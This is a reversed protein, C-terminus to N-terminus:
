RVRSANGPARTLACIPAHLRLRSLPADADSDPAGGRERRRLERGRLGVRAGAATARHAFREGHLDLAFAGSEDLEMALASGQAIISRGRASGPRGSGRRSPSAGSLTPCRRTDGRVLGHPHSQRRAPWSRNVPSDIVTRSWARSRRPARRHMDPARHRLPLVRGDAEVSVKFDLSGGAAISLADAYGAIVKRPVMLRRSCSSSAVPTSNGACAFSWASRRTATTSCVIRWCRGAARRTVRLAPDPDVRTRTQDHPPRVQRGPARERMARLLRQLNPSHLGAPAAMFERALDLDREPDIRFGPNSPADM